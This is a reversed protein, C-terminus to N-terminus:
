RAQGLKSSTGLPFNIKYNKAPIMAVQAFGAMETEANDGWVLIEAGVEGM